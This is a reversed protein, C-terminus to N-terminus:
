RQLSQLDEYIESDKLGNLSPAGPFGGFFRKLGELDSLENNLRMRDVIVELKDVPNNKFRFNIGECEMDESLSDGERRPQSPAAYGTICSLTKKSIKVPVHYNVESVLVDMERREKNIDYWKQTTENLLNHKLDSVQRYFNQHIFTRAARTETDICHLEYKQRHYARKLKSDRISDIKQYYTQLAPHSGELCMQLETQLKTLENEYLHQRLEAFEYEIEIIDKLADQRLKEREIPPSDDEQDDANKKTDKFSSSGKSNSEDEADEDGEDDEADEDPEDDDQNETTQAQGVRDVICSPVDMTSALTQTGNNNNTSSVPLKPKKFKPDDKNPDGDDHQQTKSEIKGYGNDEELHRKKANSSATEAQSGSDEAVYEEGVAEDEVEGEGKCEGDERKARDALDRIKVTNLDERENDMKETEADSSVYLESIELEEEQSTLKSLVSSKDDESPARQQKINHSVLSGQELERIEDGEQILALNAETLTNRSHNNSRGKREESITSISNSLGTWSDSNGQAETERKSNGSM